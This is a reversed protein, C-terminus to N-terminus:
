IQHLMAPHRYIAAKVKKHGRFEVGRKKQERIEACPKRILYQIEEIAARSFGGNGMKAMNLTLRMDSHDLHVRGGQRAMSASM